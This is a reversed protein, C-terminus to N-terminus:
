LHPFGDRSFGQRVWDRCRRWRVSQTAHRSLYKSNDAVPPSVTRAAWCTRLARLCIPLIVPWTLVSCISSTIKLSKQIPFHYSTHIITCQFTYSYFVLYIIVDQKYSQNICKIISTSHRFCGQPYMMCQIPLRVSSFNHTNLLTEPVTIKTGM